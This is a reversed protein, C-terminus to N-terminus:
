LPRTNKVEPNVLFRPDPEKGALVDLLNKAAVQAMKSRT